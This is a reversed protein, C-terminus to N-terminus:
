VRKFALEFATMLVRLTTKVGCKRSLNLLFSFLKRQKLSFWMPTKVLFYCSTKEGMLTKYKQYFDISLNTDYGKKLAILPDQPVVWYSFTGGCGYFIGGDKQLKLCFDYDQHRKLSADFLNKKAFNTDLFISSTQILGSDKFVYSAFNNVIINDNDYLKIVDLNENVVKISSFIIAKENKINEFLVEQKEIKDEDWYDDCDLFAIYQTKAKIIGSNRAAGGGQNNKHTIITIDSFKNKEQVIKEASCWKESNDDIVIISVPVTQSSVSVLARKLADPNNKYPIIVTTKIM